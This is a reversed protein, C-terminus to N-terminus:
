PPPLLVLPLLEELMGDADPEDLVSLLLLPSLAAVLLSLVLDDSM